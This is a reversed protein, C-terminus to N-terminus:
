FRMCRIQDEYVTENTIIKINFVGSSVEWIDWDEINIDHVTSDQIMPLTSASVSSSSLQLNDLSSEQSNYYQRNSDVMISTVLVLSWNSPNMSEHPMVDSLQAPIGPWWIIVMMRVIENLVSDAGSVNPFCDFYYKFFYKVNDWLLMKAQGM